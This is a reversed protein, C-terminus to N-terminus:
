GADSGAIVRVGMAHARRLSPLDLFESQGATSGFNPPPDSRHVRSTRTARKGSAVCQSWCSSGARTVRACISRQHRSKSLQATTRQSRLLASALGASGGVAMKSSFLSQDLTTAGTLADHRSSTDAVITAM